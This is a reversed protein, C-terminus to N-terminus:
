YLRFARISGFGERAGRARPNKGPQLAGDKRLASFRRVGGTRAAGGHAFEPQRGGSPGRGHDHNEKKRGGDKRRLQIVAAAWLLDGAIGVAFTALRSRYM